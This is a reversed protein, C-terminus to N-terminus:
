VPAVGKKVSLPAPAPKAVVPAPKAVVPAPAPKAVVPAVAPRPAPKAAMPQPAPKAVAVKKPAPAAKPALMVAVSKPHEEWKMLAMSVKEDFSGEYVFEGDPDPVLATFGDVQVQAEYPKASPKDQDKATFSLVCTKEDACELKKFTYNFQGECFTDPCLENLEDVRSALQENSFAAGPAEDQKADAVAPAAVDKSLSVIALDYSFGGKVMYGDGPLVVLSYAGPKVNVTGKASVGVGGMFNAIEEGQADKVIIQPMFSIKKAPAIAKLEYEGGKTVTWAYTDGDVDSVNASCQQRADTLASECYASVANPDAEPAFIFAPISLVAAVGGGIFSFKKKKALSGLLGERGKASTMMSRWGPKTLSGGELKGLVFLSGEVPVYKETVKFGTTWGKDHDLVPVDWSLEGFQLHSSGGHGNLEKKLGDKYNDFDAGKSVDVMVPGSGDDLGFVAGGKLTELTETGKVTKTGDQTTETKEYLREIKVEYSLCPQKTCPSLLEVAPPLVKGETSMAGKPDSSVPNKAIEGTKQFPAALM